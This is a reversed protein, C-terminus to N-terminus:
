TSNKWEQNGYSESDEKRVLHTKVHLVEETSLERWHVSRQGGKHRVGGGGLRGARQQESLSYWLLYM